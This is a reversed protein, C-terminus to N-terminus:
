GALWVAVGAVWGLGGRWGALWGVLVGVLWEVGCVGGALWGAQPMRNELSSRFKNQHVLRWKPRGPAERHLRRASAILTKM